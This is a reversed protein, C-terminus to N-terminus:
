PPGVIKKSMDLPWLQYTKVCEFPTKDFFCASNLTKRAMNFAEAPWM